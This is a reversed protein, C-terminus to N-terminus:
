GCIQVFVVLVRQRGVIANGSTYIGRCV